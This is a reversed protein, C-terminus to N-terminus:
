HSSNLRTSESRTSLGVVGGPGCVVTNFRAEIERALEEGQSVQERAAESETLEVQSEGVALLQIPIIDQIECLFACLTEMSAKRRASYAAIYGHVLQSKRLSFSSHFSLLSLDVSQRQGGVSLDLLVSTGSSLNSAPRCHQPLLLPSLLQEVDYSDGCM